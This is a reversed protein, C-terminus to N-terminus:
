GHGRQDLAVVQYGATVLANFTGPKIYLGEASGSFGHLLVVTEGSGETFYRLNVGNSDFHDSGASMVTSSFLLFALTLTHSIRM